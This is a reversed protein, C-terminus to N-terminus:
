APLEGTKLWRACEAGLEAEAVRDCRDIEEPSLMDKWRGNTGKNIFKQGGGDFIQDLMEFQKSQERMYDIDCHAVITPWLSEPVDIELFDAVKRAEGEFDQKLNGFHLLMVNPLERADWWSKICPWFATDPSMSPFYGQELFRAYYERVDCDLPTLPPGVLGPTNNFAEVAGPTLISHHHYMSWTVDRADRGIFLYKVQPLYPVCNFPSHTKIFRRHTQAEAMAFLDEKPALRFEPWPSLAQGYADPAGQMVIQCVLQQTWTTGSKSWTGIMIDDDRFPFDNLRASDWAAWQQEANKVPIELAM